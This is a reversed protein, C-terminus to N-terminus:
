ELPSATLDDMLPQTIQKLSCIGSVGAGGASISVTFALIVLIPLHVPQSSSYSCSVLVRIEKLVTRPIDPESTESFSRQMLGPVPPDLEDDKDDNGAREWKELFAEDLEVSPQSQAIPETSMGTPPRTSLTSAASGAISAGLGSGTAPLPRVFDLSISSYLDGQISPKASPSFGIGGAETGAGAFPGM